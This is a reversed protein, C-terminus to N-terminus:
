SHEITKQERGHLEVDSRLLSLGERARTRLEKAGKNNNGKSVKHPMNNIFIRCQDHVM